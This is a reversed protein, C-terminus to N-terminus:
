GPQQESPRLSKAAEYMNKVGDASYEGEAIDYIEYKNGNIDRVMYFHNQSTETGDIEWTYIFGDAEDVTYTTKFIANGEVEQKKANLDGGGPLIEINFDNGVTVQTGGMPGENIQPVGKNEDPINIVLPLGVVPHDSLDLTTMGQPVENVEAVEDTGSEATTDCGSFLPLMLLAIPIYLLTKKM